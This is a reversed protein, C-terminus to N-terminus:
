YPYAFSAHATQFPRELYGAADLYKSMQPYKKAIEYMAVEYVHYDPQPQGFSTIKTQGPFESQISNVHARTHLAFRATLDGPITMGPVARIDFLGERYLIERLEDYSKAWH